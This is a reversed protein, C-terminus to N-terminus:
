KNYIGLYARMNALTQKCFIAQPDQTAKAPKSALYSLANFAARKSWTQKSVGSLIGSLGSM